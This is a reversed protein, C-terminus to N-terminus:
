NRQYPNTPTHFNTTPAGAHFFTESVSGYVFTNRVYANVNLYRIKGHVTHEITRLPQCTSRHDPFRVGETPERMEM